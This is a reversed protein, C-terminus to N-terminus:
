RGLQECTVMVLKRALTATVALETQWDAPAGEASDADGTIQATPGGTAPSSTLAGGVPAETRAM